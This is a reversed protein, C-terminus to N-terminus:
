DEEGTLRRGIEEILYEAQGKAFPSSLAEYYNEEFANRDALYFNFGNCYALFIIHHHSKLSRTLTSFIESPVTVMTLDNWRIFSCTLSIREIGQLSYALSINTKAGELRSELVRREGPSAYQLAEKTDIKTQEYKRRAADVSDAEKAKLSITQEQITLQYLEGKYYPRRLADEIALALKQGFHVIQQFTSSQRTFRTSIDGCNGNIFMVLDYKKLSREVGFPLDASILTNERNLVTPHCSFHYLLLRKGNKLQFRIALLSDDGPKAPSHREKGIGRVEGTAMEMTFHSMNKLSDLIAELCGKIIHGLLPRNVQGLIDETGKLVGNETDCIGAVSSHTHTSFISLSNAAIGEASLREQLGEYLLHDVAVVDLTLFIHLEGKKQFTLAKAFIDDHVGTAKRIPSYGALELPLSFSPTIVKKAYGLMYRTM